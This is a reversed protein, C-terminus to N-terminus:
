TEEYSRQFAAWAKEDRVFKSEDVLRDKAQRYYTFANQDDPISFSVFSQVDFPEGADRTSAMRYWVLLALSGAIVILLRVTTRGKFPWRWLSSRRTSNSETTM